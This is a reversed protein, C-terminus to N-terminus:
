LTNIHSILIEPDKTSAPIAENANHDSYYHLQDGIYSVLDFM